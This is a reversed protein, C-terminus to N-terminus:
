RIEQQDLLALRYIFFSHLVARNEREHYYFDLEIAECLLHTVKKADLDHIAMSFEGSPPASESGVFFAKRVKV